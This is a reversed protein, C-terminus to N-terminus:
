TQDSHLWKPTSIPEFDHLKKLLKESNSDSLVMARNEPKLFGDEVMRDFQGLLLDYFGNINYLAIPKQSLGLQSWTLMEAVEELTGLGGPMAIFADSIESIKQKREHMSDVLILEHIDLNGVEKKNLFHPLVGTVRGGQQLVTNAIVGMLGINGGGYVLNLGKNAITNGLVVAEDRYVKNKGLSSGCYVSVTQINNM